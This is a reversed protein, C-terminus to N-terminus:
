MAQSVKNREERVKQKLKREIDNQAKLQRAHKRKRFGTLYESFSSIFTCCIVLVAVFIYLAAPFVAWHILIKM